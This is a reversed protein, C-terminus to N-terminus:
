KGTAITLQNIVAEVDDINRVLQELAASQERSRVCGKLWVWRRQGEIWISTDAFRGDALIAKKVRPIIEEDYLYSNPLRCRGDRYCSGGREARWHSEALAERRTLLPGQQRPCAAIAATVQMFPDNFYNTRAEDDAHTGAPLLLAAALICTRRTIRIPNM